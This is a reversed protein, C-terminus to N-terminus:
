NLLLPKPLEGLGKQKSIAEDGFERRADDENREFLILRLVASSRPYDKRPSIEGFFKACQLNSSELSAGVFQSALCNLSWIRIRVFAKTLADHGIPHQRM